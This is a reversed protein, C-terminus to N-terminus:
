QILFEVSRSVVPVDNPYYYRRHCKAMAVLVKATAAVDDGGLAPLSQRRARDGLAAILADVEAKWIVGSKRAALEERLQRREVRVGLRHGHVEQHRM